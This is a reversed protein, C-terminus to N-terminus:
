VKESEDEKLKDNLWKRADEVTTKTDIEIPQTPMGELRELLLKIAQINGSASMSALKNMIIEGKPMIVRVKVKEGTRKDGDMLEGEIITFGDSEVVEKLLQSLGRKRGSKDRRKDYGSKFPKLNKDNAM